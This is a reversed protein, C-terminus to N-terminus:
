PALSGIAPLFVETILLPSGSRHFVSRRAWLPPLAPRGTARRADHWRPDRADLRAAELPSRRVRPDDFLVAALPRGGLQRLLHWAAPISTGAVLSRAFVVPEGDALLLVERQWLDGHRHVGLAAMEDPLVVGKGQSVVKLSFRGCRARIRATLSSDDTLWGRMGRPARWAAMRFPDRGPFHALTM